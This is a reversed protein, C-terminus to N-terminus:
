VDAAMSARDPDARVSQHLTSVCTARSDPGVSASLAAVTFRSVLPETTVRARNVLGVAAALMVTATTLALKVASRDLSTSAANKHDM